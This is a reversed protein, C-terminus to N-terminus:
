EGQYTEENDPDGCEQWDIAHMLWNRNSNDVYCSIGREIAYLGGFLWLWDERGSVVAAGAACAVLVLHWWLQIWTDRDLDRQFAAYVGKKDGHQFLNVHKLKSM